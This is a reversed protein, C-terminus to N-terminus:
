VQIAQGQWHGAPYLINPFDGLKEPWSMFHTLAPSPLLVPEM